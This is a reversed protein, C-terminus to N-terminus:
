GSELPAVVRAFAREDFGHGVRLVHGTRLLMTVPEGRRQPEAGVRVPLLAPLM